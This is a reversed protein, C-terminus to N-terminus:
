NNASVLRRERQDSVLFLTDVTDVARNLSKKYKTHGGLLDRVSAQAITVVAKVYLLVEFSLVFFSVLLVALLQKQTGVDRLMRSGPDLHQKKM